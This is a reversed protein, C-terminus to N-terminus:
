RTDYFCQGMGFHLYPWIGSNAALPWIHRQKRMTKYGATMAMMM